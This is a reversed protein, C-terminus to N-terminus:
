RCEPLSSSLLLDCLFVGSVRIVQANRQVSFFGENELELYLGDDPRGSLFDLVRADESPVIQAADGYAAFIFPPPALRPPAFFFSASRRLLGLRAQAVSQRGDRVRGATAQLVGQVAPVEGLAQGLLYRVATTRTSSTFFSTPASLSQVYRPVGRDRAKALAAQLLAVNGGRGHGISALRSADITPDSVVGSIGTVLAWADEGDAAYPDSPAPSAFPRGAVRLTGGRYALFVMVVESKLDQRLAVDQMLAEIQTDPENGLVLLLPRRRADGVARPPQRVAGVFVRQGGRVGEVVSVTERGGLDLREVLRLTVASDRAPGSRWDSLVAEIETGTPPAFLSDIDVGAIVTRDGPEVPCGLGSRECADSDCAALALALALVAGARFGIM